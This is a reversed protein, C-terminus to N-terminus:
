FTSCLREGFTRSETPWTFKYRKADESFIWGHKLRTALGGQATHLAYCVRKQAVNQSVNAVQETKQSM